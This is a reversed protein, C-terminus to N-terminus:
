GLMSSRYNGDNAYKRLMTGDPATPSYITVCRNGLLYIYGDASLQWKNNPLWTYTLGVSHNSYDSLTPTGQYWILEDQQLMNPSKQSADPVDKNYQWNAEFQHKDTPSFTAYANALPFNNNMRHDNIHNREWAWGFETGINWKELNLDYHAGAVYAGVNYKQHSPTNGFYDIFNWNQMTSLGVFISNKENFQCHLRPNIRMNHVDESANNVIALAETTSYLSNAKNKGYTYAVEAELSFTESFNFFLNGNYSLAWNHSSTLSTATSPAFLDSSYHLSNVADNHPVNALSYSIRNSIRTNDRHFLARLAFDNSNNRYLYSDTESLRQVTQPGRGFLNDFLFIETSKVGGNRNTLYIEDAYFDFIMAKYAMKSYVEGESRNVGFWKNATAKTYGGWEYKQM